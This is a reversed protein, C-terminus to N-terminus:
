VDRPVESTPAKAARTRRMREKNYEKYCDSCQNGNWLRGDEQCFRVHKGRVVPSKPKEIGCMKCKM